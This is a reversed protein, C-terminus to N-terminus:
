LDHLFQGRVFGAWIRFIAGRPAWLDITIGNRIVKAMGKPINKTYKRLSRFAQKQVVTYYKLWM